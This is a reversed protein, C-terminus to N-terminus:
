GKKAAKLWATRSALAAEADAIAKANGSAKAAALDREAKEVAEALKAAFPDVAVPRQPLSKRLHEDEIARVHEEIARLRDELERVRERPVRGLEDWQRQLTRLRDRATSRDTISRIDAAGDLLALKAELNATYEVNEAAVRASKAAYIADGAAKFRDWLRDDDKKGARGAAKWDDLLARYAGIADGGQEVLAEARAVLAQKASRAERHTADLGAYFAKRQADVATRASRFRKWLEDAVPKPIRPADNQHQQWRAFLADIEASVSKWQASSLDRAAIAEAAVVIETREAVAQEQAAKAEERQQETLETVAGGLAELRRRLAALDGVANAGEIAATLRAVTKAVDAAPAGAKARQEVLSVQGALDAFKREFYAIAEEPTADPYEGVAREGDGERVYVVGQDDVRGWPADSETAAATM